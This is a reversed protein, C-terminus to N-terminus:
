AFFIIKPHSDIHYYVSGLIQLIKREALKVNGYKKSFDDFM